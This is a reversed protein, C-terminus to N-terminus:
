GAMRYRAVHELDPCIALMDRDVEVRISQQILSVSIVVRYSSSAKLLVGEVGTLPGRVIRVRAGQNLYPCPEAPLRCQMVNRIAVIEREDIAIPIRGYGVIQRVGPTMLIPLRFRPDFKSFLYGPFLPIEAERSKHPWRKELATSPAFAEYGKNRLAEAIPREHRTPVQLAFWQEVGTGPVECIDM